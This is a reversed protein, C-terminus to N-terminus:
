RAPTTEDIADILTETRARYGDRVAEGFSDVRENVQAFFRRGPETSNVLHALAFGAAVGAVILLVNRM